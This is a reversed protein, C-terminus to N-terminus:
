QLNSLRWGIFVCRNWLYLYFVRLEMRRVMRPASCVAGLCAQVASAGARAWPTTQYSWDHGTLVFASAGSYVLWGLCGVAFCVIWRSRM